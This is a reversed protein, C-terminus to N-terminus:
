SWVGVPFVDYLAPGGLWPCLVPVAVLFPRVPSTRRNKPAGELDRLVRGFGGTSDYLFGDM